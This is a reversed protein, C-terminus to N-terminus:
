TAVTTIQLICVCPVAPNGGIREDYVLDLGPRQGGRAREESVDIPRVNLLEPSTLPPQDSNSWNKDIGKLPFTIKLNAAM